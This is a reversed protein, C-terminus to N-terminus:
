NLPMKRIQYKDSFADSCKVPVDILITRCLADM